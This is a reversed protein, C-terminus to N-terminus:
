FAITAGLFAHDPGVSPELRFASDSPEDGSTLASILFYIGVGGVVAGAIGLIPVLYQYTDLKSCLDDIWPEAPPEACVDETGMPYLARARQLDDGVGPGDDVLQFYYEYGLAGWLAGLVVGAATMGIGVILEVDRGSLGGGGAGAQLEAEFTAEGYAEVSLTSAFSQHGPAVIRVNRSGAEVNEVILEGQDDTTGVSEGDVFVEAGPVNVVIHATGLRPAGSLAAVYRRAPERLDDIDRRIQPITDAVSAEIEDSQGNFVHLNISFDYSEGASTRRVEGYLLRDAQLSDAIQTMCAPDPEACGHALVLQALTVERDSVTWESVQSAEHRLAGTLNRAFEDDGEVSRIGLVMVEAQASAAAPAICAAALAGCLAWLHLRLLRSSREM